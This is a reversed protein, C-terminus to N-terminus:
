NISKLKLHQICNSKSHLGSLSTQGVGLLVHKIGDQGYKPVVDWVVDSEQHREGVVLRGRNEFGDLAEVLLWRHEFGGLSEVDNMLRQVVLEIVRAEAGIPHGSIRIAVQHGPLKSHM